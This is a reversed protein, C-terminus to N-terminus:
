WGVRRLGPVADFHEDRTLVPLRHELAIAAIWADNAPIPRGTKKLAVRLRAYVIATSDTVAVVEFDHLHEDLWAEYKARHRSGAVGYRFEGLVIVPIAVRERGALREGVAPDGDVFASLANTDLIV